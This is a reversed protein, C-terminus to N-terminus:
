WISMALIPTFIRTNCKSPPQRNLILISLFACMRDLFGGVWPGLADKLEGGGTIM